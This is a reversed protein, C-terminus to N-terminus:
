HIAQGADTDEFFVQCMHSCELISAAAYACLAGSSNWGRSRRALENLCGEAALHLGILTGRTAAELLKKGHSGGGASQALLRQAFEPQVRTYERARLLVCPAGGEDGESGGGGGTGDCLQRAWDVARPAGLPLVLLFGKELGGHAASQLGVSRPVPCLRPVSQEEDEGLVDACVSSLPPLVTTYPTDPPLLAVEGHKPTFNYPEAWRNNFPSLGAKHLQEDLGAYHVSFCGFRAESTAEVSPQSTTLLLVDLRDVDRTRFQKCAVVARIDDCNRLFVSSECPGIFLRCRSCRDVSVTASWDLVFLDCDVCDEIIFQQGGVAGPPKVLTEGSRGRFMFDNIDLKPRINLESCTPGGGGGGGDGGGDSAAPAAASASGKRRRTFSLTRRKPAAAQPPPPAEDDDRLEASAPEASAPEAAAAATAAPGPEAGEDAPREWRVARTRTNWYYVQGTSKDLAERWHRPLPKPRDHSTEKTVINFFYENGEGDTMRKWGRPLDANLSPRRGFSLSRRLGSAVSSSAAMTVKIEPQGGDGNSGGDSDHRAAASSPRRRTFSLSRTTLSKAGACATAAKEKVTQMTEARRRRKHLKVTRARARAAVWASTRLQAFTVVAM